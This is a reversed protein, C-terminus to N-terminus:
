SSYMNELKQEFNRIFTFVNNILELNAQQVQIHVNFVTMGAVSKTDVETGDSLTVIGDKEMASAFGNLDEYFNRQSEKAVGFIDMSVAKSNKQVNIHSFFQTTSPIM